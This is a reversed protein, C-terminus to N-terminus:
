DAVGGDSWAGNEALLRWINTATCMVYVFDGGSDASSDSDLEDGATLATGDMLTFVDNSTDTLAVELKESDDKIILMVWTGTASDCVDPLTVECAASVTYIRNMQASSLSSNTTIESGIETAMSSAGTSVLKAATLDWSGDTNNDITEGNNGRIDAVHWFRKRRIGNFDLGYEWGSIGGTM